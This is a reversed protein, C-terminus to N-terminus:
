IYESCIILMDFILLYTILVHLCLIMTISAGDILSVKGDYFWMNILYRRGSNPLMFQRCTYIYMKDNPVAPFLYLVTHIKKKFLIYTLPLLHYWANLKFRLCYAITQANLKIGLIEHMLSIERFKTKHIRVFAHEIKWIIRYKM